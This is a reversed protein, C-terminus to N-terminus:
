ILEFEVERGYEKKAEVFTETVRALFRQIEPPLDATGSVLVRFPPELDNIGGYLSDDLADLSRGHWAPAGLAPFLASYFDDPTRWASADLSILKM